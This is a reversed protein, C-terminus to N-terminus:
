NQLNENKTLKKLARYKFIFNNARTLEISTLRKKLIRLRKRVTRCHTILSFFQKSVFSLIHKKVTMLRRTQEEYLKYEFRYKILENKYISAETNVLKVLKMLKVLEIN